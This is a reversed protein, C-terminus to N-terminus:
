LIYDSINKLTENYSDDDYLPYWLNKNVFYSAEKNTLPTYNIDTMIYIIKKNSDLIANLEIAQIFSKITNETICVMINSSNNIIKNIINIKEEFDFSDDLIDHHSCNVVNFNNKKLENSLKDIYINNQNSIDYSIYIDNLQNTVISTTSGM